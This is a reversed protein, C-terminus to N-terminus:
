PASQRPQEMSTVHGIWPRFLSSLPQGDISSISAMSEVLIPPSSPLSQGLSGQPVATGDYTPKISIM